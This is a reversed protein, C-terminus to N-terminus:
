PTSEAGLRALAAQVNDEIPRATDVVLHPWGQELPDFDQEQSALIEPRGDSVSPGAALRRELRQVVLARPCVVELAWLQAGLEQALRRPGERWAAKRYSADLVVSRGSELHERARGLLAAYTRETMEPSYLGQGWPEFHRETPELGALEKRLADSGVVAADLREAVAEAVTSKGTGVLGVTFILRLPRDPGRAYRHALRFYSQADRTIQAREAAPLGADALRFGAVKGRVYARYCQYFPLLAELGTDGTQALYRRVFARGLGPRGRADLDMALFAVESAVDGFRFRENFEICDYIYLGDEVCINGAHLDGHCDRIRGQRVREALLPAREAIFRRTYTAIADYQERSITRGILPGTQQFNEETNFRITELSGGIEDVRGGTEAAAHFDAVKDAIREMTPATVLGRRLLVDLMRDAPLRAMSVAYDVTEGVGGIAIRGGSDQTIPVVGLYMQPALRRNLRVEEECFHRRRESTTFDAFGLDVPRKVKYAHRDTLFVWSIHTQVLEVRSTPEPYASPDLLAAVLPSQSDM